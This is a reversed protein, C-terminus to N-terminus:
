PAIKMALMSISAGDVGDVPFSVSDGPAQAGLVYLLPLYHEPTPISLLADGGLEEYHILVGEDRLPRLVRGLNYHWAPPQAADIRLQVVPVDADPFVHILVSWAETYKNRALVNM